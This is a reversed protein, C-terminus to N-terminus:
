FDAVVVGITHGAVSPPPASAEITAVAAVGGLVFVGVIGLVVILARGLRLIREGSLLPPPPLRRRLRRVGEGYGEITASLDTYQLDAIGYATMGAAEEEPTVRRVKVPFIPKREELAQAVEAKCFESRCYDPPLCAIMADSHSVQRKLEDRWNEGAEIGHEASDAWVLHDHRKMDGCLRDVALRDARSYSIFIQRSQRPQSTVPADPM